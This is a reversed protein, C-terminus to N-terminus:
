YQENVQWVIHILSFFIGAFLPTECGALRRRVIIRRNRWRIPLIRLVRQIERKEGLLQYCAQNLVGDFPIGCM